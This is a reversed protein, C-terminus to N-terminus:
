KGIGLRLALINPLNAELIKDQAKKIDYKVRRFTISNEELDYIGYASMPNGDRPQGVSGVNILYKSGSKIKLKGTKLFPTLTNSQFSCQIHTHGFFCVLDKQFSFCHEADNSNFVYGWEEPKELNAHVITFAEIRQVYSLSSLYAKSEDTLIKKHYEIAVKAAANFDGINTTGLAGADHNGLVCPCHLDRIIGICENPNAGYGAIDGLCIYKTIDQSNIDDLVATLAELNGHIDSIIAYKM